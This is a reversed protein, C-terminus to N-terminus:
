GCKPQIAVRIWIKSVFLVDGECEKVTYYQSVELDEALGNSKPLLSMSCDEFQVGVYASMVRHFEHWLGYLIPNGHYVCYKQM